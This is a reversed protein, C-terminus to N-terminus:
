EGDHHQHTGQSGDSRRWQCVLEDKAGFRVLHRGVVGEFRDIEDAPAELVLELSDQRATITAQARGDAFSGNGTKEDEDWTFPVKHSFHSALQKGYRAPRDTVVCAVSTLSASMRTVRAAHLAGLLFLPPTGPGEASCVSPGPSQM